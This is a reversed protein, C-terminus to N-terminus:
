NANLLRIKNLFRKSYSEKIDMGSRVDNMLEKAHDDSVHSPVGNRFSHFDNDRAYERMKTGSIGETGESDPDRHGASRVEIKKFNYYGHKGPVGNYKNILDEMEKTRDSGGVYILHSHGASHLKSLHHLLTPSDSNASVFNTRPSYRRLHKIKQEPTLPNKKKDNSGSVIVSHDAGEKDAVSHVADILKLHGSTPPNMRGFATVVKSM